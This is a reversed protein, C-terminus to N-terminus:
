KPCSFIKGLLRALNVKSSMSTNWELANKVNILDFTSFTTFDSRTEEVTWHDGERAQHCICVQSFIWSLCRAGLCQLTTATIFIRSCKSIAFSKVLYWKGYAPSLSTDCLDLRCCNYAYLMNPKCLAVLTEFHQLSGPQPLSILYSLYNHWTVYILSYQRLTWDSNKGILFDRDILQSSAGKVGM